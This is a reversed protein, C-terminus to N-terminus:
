NAILNTVRGVAVTTDADRLIFQGLKPFRAYPELFAPHELMIRAMGEDGDYLIDGAVETISCRVKVNHCHFVACFGRMFVMNKLELIKIKCNFETIGELAATGEFNPNVLVSGAKIQENAKVKLFAYDGYCCFQQSVEAVYVEMIKVLFGDPMCLVEDGVFLCNSEVRGSVRQKSAQHVTFRLPKKKPRSIKSLTELQDVMTGDDYFDLPLRTTLNSGEMGSIPVFRINKKKFGVSLLYKKMKKTINTYVEESWNCCDMKNIVCLIKKMRLALALETHQKTQGGEFGALFEDARASCILVAIDGQSAGNIMNVLYNSHGPADVITYRHADTEFYTFGCEVTIGKSKEEETADVVFAYKWGDRGYKSAEQAYRQMERDSVQGLQFLLHGVTTSKGSDVHGIFVLNVNEKAPKIRLRKSLRNHLFHIHPVDSILSRLAEVFEEKTTNKSMDRLVTVDYGSSVLNEYYKTFNKGCTSLFECLEDVSPEVDEIEEVKPKPANLMPVNQVFPITTVNEFENQFEPDLENDPIFYSLWGGIGGFMFFMTTNADYDPIRIVECGTESAKLLIYEELDEIALEPVTDPVPEALLLQRIAGRELAILTSAQGNVTFENPDYCAELFSAAILSLKQARGDDLVEQMRHIIEHWGSIGSYSVDTIYLQSKIEDALVPSEKLHHKLEGCGGLIVAEFKKKRFFQNLAQAAKKVWAKRANFVSGALGLRARDEEVM